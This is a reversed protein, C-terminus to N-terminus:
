NPKLILFSFFRNKRSRHHPDHPHSPHTQNRSGLLTSPQTALGSPGPCVLIDLLTSSTCPITPGPITGVFKKIIIKEGRHESGECMCKALDLDRIRLKYRLVFEYPTGINPVYSSCPFYKFLLVVRSKKYVTFLAFQGTM